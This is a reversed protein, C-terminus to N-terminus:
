GEEALRAIIRRGEEESLCEVPLWAPRAGNREVYRLVAESYEDIWAPEPPPAPQAVTAPAAAPDPEDFPTALPAVLRSQVDTAPQAVYTDAEEEATHYGLMVEPCYARILFAASRYRLMVEPMSTYKANKTWGEAKAMEMDVPFKVVKGSKLTAVAVVQLTAGKGTIEWDIADKFAGSRNARAIMYSSAWGFKGNVVHINNMVVIPNEGLERAMVLCITCNAVAQEPGGKRLHEPVLPSAAFMKAVRLMHTFAAGDSYIDGMPANHIPVLATTTTQVDSM